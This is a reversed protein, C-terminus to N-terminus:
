LLSRWPDPQGWNRSSWPHEELTQELKKMARDEACKKYYEKEEQSIPKVGLDPLGNPYMQEYLQGALRSADRDLEDFTEGILRSAMEEPLKYKRCLDTRISGTVIKGSSVLSGSLAQEFKKMARNEDIM